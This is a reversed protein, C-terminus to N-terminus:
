SHFVGLFLQWAIKLADTSKQGKALSDATYHVRIPVEKWRLDSRTVLRLIESCHAMRDQRFDLSAASVRNLARMGSQPDTVTRPIGMAIANFAKAAALLMKRTAPMGQPAEGLFRSGFVIDAENNKLPEILQPIFEPDHQGDADVHVVVDAGLLLAAATGTRLGAGQGRNIAHRVVIAGAERARESTEDQSGDDVLIVNDVYGRVNQVTQAVRPAENLAPIVAMVKMGYLKRSISIKKYYRGTMGEFSPIQIPPYLWIGTKM